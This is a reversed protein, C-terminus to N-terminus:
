LKNLNWNYDTYKIALDDKEIVKRDATSVYPLIFKEVSGSKAIFDAKFWDFIPSLYLTKNAADLHNKSRNGLFSRTQEDLQADLKDAQFAEPRLAPCGISACNIAFHIRPDKYKERLLDNEVYDLTQKAGFLRVVPQKWPGKFISGIDKISKVPYHDVILKLTTANYLNILFAMQQDRNWKKFASEPVAALTDLYTTLEGPNKKLSAYDVKNDKLDKQLIDTFASHSQDFEGSATAVTYIGQKNGRSCAPLLAVLSLLASFAITKM